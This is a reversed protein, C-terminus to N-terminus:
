PRPPWGGPHCVDVSGHEMGAQHQCQIGDDCWVTNQGPETVERCAPLAMKLATETSETGPETGGCAAVALVVGALASWRAWKM